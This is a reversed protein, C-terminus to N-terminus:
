SVTSSPSIFFSAPVMGHSEVYPSVQSRCFDPSLSSPAFVDPVICPLAQRRSWFHSISLEIMVFLNTCVGFFPPEFSCTMSRIVLLLFGCLMDIFLTPFQHFCSAYFYVTFSSFSLLNITVMAPTNLLPVVFVFGSDLGAESRDYRQTLSYAQRYQLQPLLPLLLHLPRLPSQLM